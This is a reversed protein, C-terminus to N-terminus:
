AVHRVITYLNTVGNDAVHAVFFIFGDKPEGNADVASIMPAEPISGVCKLETGHFPEVAFSRPCPYLCCVAAIVFEM